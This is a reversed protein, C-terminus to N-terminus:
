EPEARRCRFRCGSYRFEKGIEHNNNSYRLRRWTDASPGAGNSQRPRSPIRQQLHHPQTVGSAASPRTQRAIAQKSAPTEEESTKTRSEDQKQERNTKNKSARESKMGKKSSMGRRREQRRMM